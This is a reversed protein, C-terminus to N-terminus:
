LLGFREIGYSYIIEGMKELNELVILGKNIMGM